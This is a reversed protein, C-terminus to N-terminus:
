TKKLKKRRNGNSDDEDDSEESDSRIDSAEGEKLAKVVIRFILVTWFIHLLMLGILLMLIVRPAYPKVTFNWVPYDPQILAPGEAVGTYVVFVPFYILRSIIWSIFFVIFLANSLELYKKTYRVLKCAELFIDSVDHSILVLTGVRVFNVTWSFVILGITILHHVFMQWADSRQADFPSAALLSIYFSCEIMYYWYIITDVEHKPYSIFGQRVDYLWSKDHLAYVGFAFLFTYSIFRWFTELIKKSRSCKLFGGTIHHYASSLYPKRQYGLLKGIGLGIFAESLIRICFVFPALYVATLLQSPVTPVDDWTYSIPLWISHNWFRQYTTPEM